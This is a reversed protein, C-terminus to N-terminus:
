TFRAIGPQGGFRLPHLVPRSNAEDDDGHVVCDALTKTCTALTGLYGCEVSKYVWRCRTRSYRWPPHPANMLGPFVLQFVAARNDYSASGIKGRYVSAMRPDDLFDKHVIYIAVNKDALGDHEDMELEVERTINSVTVQVSPLTGDADTRFEGLEVPFPNFTKGCWTVPQTYKVLRYYDTGDIEIEFLILWPEDTESTRLQALLPAPLTRM